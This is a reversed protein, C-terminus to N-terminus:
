GAPCGLIDVAGTAGIVTIRLGDRDLALPGGDAAIMRVDALLRGDQWRTAAESVWIGPQGSEVVVVENGGDPPMQLEATLSLGDATPEMRCRASSVGAEEPTLPRDVLAAVIAPDRGGDPPLTADFSLSVPICIDECVGLDVHGSLHIGTGPEAPTLEVPIVVQGSYGITTMGNPFWVEPAPWHLQAGGINQSGTWAFLPPIGADGPARWYTKWGPALTFRLAAMHTGQATRWGPLVEVAIVDDPPGALAPAAILALLAALRFKPM